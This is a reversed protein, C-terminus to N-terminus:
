QRNPSEESTVEAPNDAIRQNRRGIPRVIWAIRHLVRGDHTEITSPMQEAGDATFFAGMLDLVEGKIIPRTHRGGPALNQRDGIAVEARRLNEVERRLAAPIKDM